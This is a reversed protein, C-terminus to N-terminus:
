TALDFAGGRPLTRKVVFWRGSKCMVVDFLWFLLLGKITNTYVSHDEPKRFNESHNVFDWHYWSIDVNIDDYLTCFCCLRARSFKRLFEVWRDFDEEGTSGEETQFPQIVWLQGFSSLYKNGPMEPHMKAGPVPPGLSDEHGSPESYTHCLPAPLWFHRTIAVKLWNEAIPFPSILLRGYDPM